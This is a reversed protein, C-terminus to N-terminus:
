TGWVKLAEVPWLQCMWGFGGVYSQLPYGQSVTCLIVFCQPALIWWLIGYIFVDASRLEDAMVDAM